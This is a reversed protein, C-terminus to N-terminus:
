RRRPQDLLIRRFMFFFKKLQAAYGKKAMARQGEVGNLVYTFYRNHCFGFFRRARLTRFAASDFFLELEGCARSAGPTPTANSKHM